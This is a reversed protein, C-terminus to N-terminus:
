GILGSVGSITPSVHFLAAETTKLYAHGLIGFTVFQFVPQCVSM